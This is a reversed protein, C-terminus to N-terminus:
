PVDGNTKVADRIAQDWTRVNDRTLGSWEYDALFDIVDDCQVDTLRAPEAPTEVPPAAVKWREIEGVVQEALTVLDITNGVLPKCHVAEYVQRIFISAALLSLNLDDVQENSSM